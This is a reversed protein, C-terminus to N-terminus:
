GKLRVVTVGAGGENWDGLRISDVESHKKLYESLTRRLTGTGKGHIVYVQRLGAIVARDLFRELSDLAEDVTMGRLHIEPSEVQQAVVTVPVRQNPPQSETRQQKRLNRLPVTTLMSGVRIKARDDGIMQEIEGAQNLSLIVVSDGVAFRENGAQQAQMEEQRQALERQQQQVAHHFRKVSEQSAQSTRLEAVLREIEKRSRDIFEATDALAKKKEGEVDNTLQKTRERYMTELQSAKELREALELKDTRLTALELELTAILETLSREGSGIIATAHECIEEPMGLRGAIEIAFSAGPIGMHFRYTPALSSRDFELSANEIEAQEMALTKLQSYHTSVILRAGREIAYTIVAEALAAGEKPDTGAGIEDFLLLTHDDAGRLGQIINGVHSSFTSLSLEISQEDGIDAYLKRFSGVVSKPDAPIHLGASAMVTLLGVTKIMITKGGTNPGTVLIAQRNKGLSVSAPVVKDPSGFQLVLLPHRADLLTLTPEDVITPANGGTLRSFDACAHLCDLRGIIQCNQTLADSCTGIEATLDCLIRHIEMMEDQSLMQVRNNLEVAETPEVYLTAGSQSRDHLIGLDSRYQGSPVPIVYRGNRQTVVDDQWGAQKTRDSINKELRRILRRKGDGLESRITRLKPSASDLIEGQENVTRDIRKGLDPFTCLQDLYEAIQPFKERGDRDYRYLRDSADVLERVRRIDDPALVAGNVQSARLLERGDEIRYLPFDIGFCIIDKMQSLETLNRRARELDGTPHIQRVLELGFPTRCRGAIRDVIKPFELTELTHRDLM